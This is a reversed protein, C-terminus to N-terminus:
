DRRFHCHDLDRQGGIHEEGTPTHPARGHCYDASLARCSKAENGASVSVLIQFTFRGSGFPGSVITKM